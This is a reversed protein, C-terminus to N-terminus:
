SNGMDPTFIGLPPAAYTFLILSAGYFITLMLLYGAAKETFRNKRLAYILLFGLLMTLFYLGIDVPLAMVAFGGSLLYYLGGLFVPMLPLVLFVAGWLAVPREARRTLVFAAALTPWFLLKFHEWVSENVPSVLATLANPWLDYLFHLASGVLAAVLATLLFRKKLM